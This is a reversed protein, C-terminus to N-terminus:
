AEESEIQVQNEQLFFDISYGIEDIVKQPIKLDTGECQYWGVIGKQLAFRYDTKTEFHCFHYTAYNRTTVPGCVFDGNPLTVKVNLVHNRFM